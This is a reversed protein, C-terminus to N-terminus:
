RAPAPSRPAASGSTPACARGRANVVKLVVEGTDEDRTMVQYLPEVVDSTDVFDNVKRGDLWTVIRRGRVEIKIDYTRGTEITDPSSAITTKGGGVAKEIVSQTNGFGGLNWWYFSGSDRAGFM